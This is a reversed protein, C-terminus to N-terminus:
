FFINKLLCVSMLKVIRQSGRGICGLPGRAGSNRERERERERQGDLSDLFLSFFFFM